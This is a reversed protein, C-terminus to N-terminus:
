SPPGVMDLLKVQVAKLLDITAQRSKQPHKSTIMKRISHTLAEAVVDPSVLVKTRVMLLDTSGTDDNASWRNNNKLMERHAQADESRMQIERMMDDIMTNLDAETYGEAEMSGSLMHQGKKEHGEKKTYREKEEMEKTVQKSDREMKNGVLNDVTNRVHDVVQGWFTRNVSRNSAKMNENENLRGRDSTDPKSREKLQNQLYETSDMDKDPARSWEPNSGTESTLYTRSEESGPPNYQHGMQNIKANHGEASLLEEDRKARNREEKWLKDRPSTNTKFGAEEGAGYEEKAQLVDPQFNHVAEVGHVTDDSKERRRAHMTEISKQGALGLATRDREETGRLPGSHYDVGLIRQKPPLERHKGQNKDSSLAAALAPHIVSFINMRSLTKQAQATSVPDVKGLLPDPSFHPLWRINKADSNVAVRSVPLSQSSFKAFRPNKGEPTATYTHIVEKDPPPSPESSSYGPSTSTTVSNSDRNNLSVPSSIALSLILFPILIRTMTLKMTFNHDFFLHTRSGGPSYDTSSVCTWPLKKTFSRIRILISLFLSLIFEVRWLLISNSNNKRPIVPSLRHFDHLPTTSTLVLLWVSGVTQSDCLLCVAM